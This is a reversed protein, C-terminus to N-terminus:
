RPLSGIAAIFNQAIETALMCAVLVILIRATLGTTHRMMVRAVVYVLGFCVSGDFLLVLVLGVSNFFSSM